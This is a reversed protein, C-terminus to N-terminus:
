PIADVMAEMATVLKDLGQGSSIARRVAAKGDKAGLTTSLRHTLDIAALHALHELQEAEEASKVSRVVLGHVLTGIAEREHPKLRMLALGIRLAAPLDAHLGGFLAARAREIDEEVERSSTGFLLASVEM